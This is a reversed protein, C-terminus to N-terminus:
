GPKASKIEIDDGFKSKLQSEAKKKADEKSDAEILINRQDKKSVIRYVVSYKSM